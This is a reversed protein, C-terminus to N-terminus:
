CASQVAVAMIPKGGDGQWCTCVHEPAHGVAGEGWERGKGLTPMPGSNVLPRRAM